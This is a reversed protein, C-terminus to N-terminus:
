HRYVGLDVAIDFPDATPYPLRGEVNEGGGVLGTSTLAFMEDLMVEMEDTWEGSGGNTLKELEGEGRREVRTLQHFLDGLGFDIGDSMGDTIEASQSYAVSVQCGEGKPYRETCPSTVIERFFAEM